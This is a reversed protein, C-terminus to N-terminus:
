AQGAHNLDPAPRNAPDAHRCDDRGGVLHGRWSDATTTRENKTDLAVVL